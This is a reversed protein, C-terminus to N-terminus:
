SCRFRRIITALQVTGYTDASIDARYCVGILCEVIEQQKRNETKM